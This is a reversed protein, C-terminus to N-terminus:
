LAAIAVGAIFIIPAAFIAFLILGAVGATREAREKRKMIALMQEHTEMYRFGVM